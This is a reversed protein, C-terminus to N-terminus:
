GRKLECSSAVARRRCRFPILCFTVGRGKETQATAPVRGGVGQLFIIPFCPRRRAASARPFLLTRGAFFSLRGAPRFYVREHQIM